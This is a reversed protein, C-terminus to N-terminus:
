TLAECAKKIRRGAEQLTEIAVPFSVRIYPSMGYASGQVVAVEAQELLYITFDQDNEIVKGQPTRKGLTGAVSCYVYLGGEPKSPMLGPCQALLDCIVDRREQMKARREAIFDQPGSLAELAAAQSISSPGSTSQSQMKGMERILERPGGAFGLRFGTMSYAKSSSNVTLTRDYLRPEVQALTAFERDDFLIHEYVDDSIVWVHPHRLLVESIAKLEERSYTAGTPNNPSSFMVWKTQPTIAAELEEPRMKFGANQSCHIFVPTGGAFKVMDPYSAWSPLPVIVEDGAEVTAMLADFLVQKAGAGCLIQDPAYDLGNDRKFKASVAERLALTGEVATYKTENRELAAMVARKVHDPTPFDPEGATLTVIDRGQARLDRARASAIQSPSRDFRRTRAAYRMM